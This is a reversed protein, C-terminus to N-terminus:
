CSVKVVKGDKVEGTLGQYYDIIVKAGTPSKFCDSQAYGRSPILLIFAAIMLVTAYFKKM